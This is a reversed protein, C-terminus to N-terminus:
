HKSLKKMLLKKAKEKKKFISSILMVMYKDTNLAMIEQLM